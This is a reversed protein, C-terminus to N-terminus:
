GANEATGLRAYIQLSQPSAWRCILQINEDPCGAARLACALGVRLSHWYYVRATPEDFLSTLLRRLWTDLVAHTFPRGRNDAFLPSRARSDGHCPFFEELARLAAAANSPSTDDYPLVSPFPSYIVGSFDTKSRSPALYAVDSQRMGALEDLTPDVIVRGGIRYTVDARVFYTLEDSTQVAEGLRHGARWM